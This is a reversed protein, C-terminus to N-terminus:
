GNEKGNKTELYTEISLDVGKPDVMSLEIRYQGTRYTLTTPAASDVPDVEWGKVQAYDNLYDVGNQYYGFLGHKVVTWHGTEDEKWILMLGLPRNVPKGGNFPDEFSSDDDPISRAVKQYRDIVDCLAEYAFHGRSNEPYLFFNDRDRRLEILRQTYYARAERSTTM